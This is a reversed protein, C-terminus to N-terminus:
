DLNFNELLISFKLRSQNKEIKPGKPFPSDSGSPPPSSKKKQFDWALYKKEPGFNGGLM